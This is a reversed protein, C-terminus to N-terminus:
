CYRRLWSCSLLFSLYLKKMYASRCIDDSFPLFNYQKARRVGCLLTILYIVLWFAYTFLLAAAYYALIDNILRKPLSAVGLIHKRNYSYNRYDYIKCLLITVSILNFVAVPLIFFVLYIVGLVWRGSNFYVRRPIYVYQGCNDRRLFRYVPCLSNVCGACRFICDLHLAPYQFHRSAAVKHRKHCHRYLKLKRNKESYVGSLAILLGCVACSLCIIFHLKNVRYYKKLTCLFAYIRCWVFILIAKACYIKHRM